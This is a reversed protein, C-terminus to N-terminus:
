QKYFAAFEQSSCHTYQPRNDSVLRLTEPIGNEAFVLKLHDIVASTTSTLKRHYPVRQLLRNNALVTRRSLRVSRYWSKALSFQTCQSSVLTGKASMELVTHLHPLQHNHEYYWKLHAALLYDRAKLQCKGVGLHGQLIIQLMQTHLDSLTLPRHGKLIFGKKRCFPRRQFELIRKTQLANTQISLGGKPFSMKWIAPQGPKNPTM